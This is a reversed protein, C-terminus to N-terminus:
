KKGKKEEKNFGSKALILNRYNYDEMRGVTVSWLTVLCSHYSIKTHAINAGSTNHPWPVPFRDRPWVLPALAIDVIKALSTVLIAWSKGSECM